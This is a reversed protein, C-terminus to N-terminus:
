RGAQDAGAASKRSTYALWFQALIREDPDESVLAAPRVAAPLWECVVTAMEDVDVLLELNELHNGLFQGPSPIVSSSEWIPQTLLHLFRVAVQRDTRMAPVFREHVAKRGKAQAVCFLAEFRWRYQLTLEESVPRPTDWVRDLFVSEVGKWLTSTDSPVVSGKKLCHWMAGVFWPDAAISMAQEIAKPWRDQTEDRQCFQVAIKAALNADSGDYFSFPERFLNSNRAIESALVVGSDSTVNNWRGVVKQLFVRQTPPQCLRHVITCLNGGGGVGALGVVQNIDHDSVDRVGVSYAFYRDAYGPSAIGQERLIGGVFGAIPDLSARRPDYLPFLRALLGKVIEADVHDLDVCARKVLMAALSDSQDPGVSQRPLSVLVHYNARVADYTTPYCVRLGELLLLDVLDVEGVLLPVAFRIANLYQEVLRPTRIKRGITSRYSDVWRVVDYGKLPCAHSGLVEEVGIFCASELDISSVRPLALHIQIIKELFCQGEVAGAKLLQVGVTRAVHERDFALVYTVNPLDACAKVLKFVMAIEVADLRDIDDIMIVIRNKTERLLKILCERQQEVTKGESSALLEVGKAAADIGKSVVDVGPMFPSAIASLMGATSLLRQGYRVLQKAVDSNATGSTEALAATLVAFFEVALDDVNRLRWPNFWKVVARGSLESELFRLVTTKGDGWPGHLGVVFCKGAPLGAISRAMAKAFPLRSYIDRQPDSLPEDAGFSPTEQM